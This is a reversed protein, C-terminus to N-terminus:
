RHTSLTSGVLLGAAFYTGTDSAPLIDYTAAHEYSVSQVDIVQVGLLASGPRLDDFHGIDPLPHGVSVELVRGSALTVRLMRHDAGVPTRNVRAIPVVVIADHDVSYVLDGVALEAIAREGSPTAIPTGASAARM